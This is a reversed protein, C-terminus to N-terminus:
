PPIRRQPKAWSHEARTRGIPVAPQISTAQLTHALGSDIDVGVHAKLGFYWDNGKKTSTMKPRAGQRNKTSSPADIFTADM